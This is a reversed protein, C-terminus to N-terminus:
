SHPVRRGEAGRSKSGRAVAGLREQLSVDYPDAQLDEMTQSMCTRWYLEERRYQQAKQVSYGHYYKIVRRLKKLFDDRLHSTWIQAVRRKVVEDTLYRASMKFASPRLSLPVIQLSCVVPLHDAHAYDGRIAYETILNDGVWNPRFTYFRDLRAMVRVGCQRRNDWSYRIANEDPSTTKSRCLM